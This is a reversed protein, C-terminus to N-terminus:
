TRYEKEDFKERCHECMGYIVLEYGAVQYDRLSFIERRISPLMEEAIDYLRGCVNCLLHYHDQLTADFRDSGSPIAIKRIKGQQAFQNLNRYVTALSLAPHQPKLQTYVEDATPHDHRASIAQFILEKQKTHKM